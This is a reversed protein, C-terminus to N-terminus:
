PGDQVVWPFTYVVSLFLIYTEGFKTGNCSHEKHGSGYDAIISVTRKICLLVVGSKRNYIMEGPLTEGDLQFEGVHHRDEEINEFM